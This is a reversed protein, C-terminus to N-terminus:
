KEENNIAHLLFTVNYLEESYWLRSFYL